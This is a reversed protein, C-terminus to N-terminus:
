AKRPLVFDALERGLALQHPSAMDFVLQHERLQDFLGRADMTAVAYDGPPPHAALFRALAPQSTFVAIARTGGELAVSVLRERFVIVRYEPHTSLVNRFRPDAPGCCLVDAILTERGISRALAFHQPEIDFGPPAGCMPNVRICAAGDGFDYLVYFGHSWSEVTDAFSKGDRTRIKAGGADLFTDLAERDTFAWIQATGGMLFASLRGADAPVLWPGHLALARLVDDVRLQGDYFRAIADRAPNAAV